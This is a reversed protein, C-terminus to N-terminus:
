ETSARIRLLRDSREDEKEHEMSKKQSHRDSFQSRMSPRNDGQLQASHTATPIHSLAGRSSRCDRAAGESRADRLRELTLRLTEWTVKDRIFQSQQEKWTVLDRGWCPLM